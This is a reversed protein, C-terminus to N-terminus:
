VDKKRDDILKWAICAALNFTGDSNKIMGARVYSRVDEVTRGIIKALQNETLAAPNM